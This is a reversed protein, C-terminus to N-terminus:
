CDADLPVSDRATVTEQRVENGIFAILKGVRASSVLASDLLRRYSRRRAEFKKEALNGM